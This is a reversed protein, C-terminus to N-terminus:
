IGAEVLLRTRGLLFSDGDALHKLRTPGLTEHLVGNTSALDALYVGDGMAFLLAHVRSLMHDWPVDGPATCRAYRGILVGDSLDELSPRFSSQRLPPPPACLSPIFRLAHNSPESLDDLTFIFRPTSTAVAVPALTSAFAAKCLARSDRHSELSSAIALVHRGVRLVAPLRLEGRTIAHGSWTRTGCDSGLDFLSIEEPHAERHVVLIHRLGMAADNLHSDVHSHRGIVATSVGPQNPELTGRRLFEGDHSVVVYHVGPTKGATRALQTFAVAAADEQAWCETLFSVRTKDGGSADDLGRRAQEVFTLTNFPHSTDDHQM